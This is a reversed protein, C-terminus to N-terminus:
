IVAPQLTAPRGATRVCGVTSQTSKYEQVKGLSKSANLGTKIRAKEESSAHLHGFRRFVRCADMLPVIGGLSIARGSNLTFSGSREVRSGSQGRWAKLMYNRESEGANTYNSPTAALKRHGHAAAEAAAAHIRGAL